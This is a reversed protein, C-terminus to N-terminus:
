YPFEDYDYGDGEDEEDDEDGDEDPLDMFFSLLEGEEYDGDEQNLLEVLSETEFELDEFDPVVCDVKWEGEYNEDDLEEDNLYHRSTEWWFWVPYQTPADKGPKICVLYCAAQISEGKDPTDPITELM